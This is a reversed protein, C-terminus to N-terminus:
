SRFSTLEKTSKNTRSNRKPQRNISVKPPPKTRAQVPTRIISVTSTDIDLALEDASTESEPYTPENSSVSVYSQTSSELGLYDANPANGNAATILEGRKEKAWDRANRLASAGQRFTDTTDTMKWGRLQTMRYETPHQPNNSQNAHTSYITLDGTGGHYTSTITHAINYQVTGPDVYSSLELM